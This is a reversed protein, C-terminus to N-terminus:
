KKGGRFRENLAELSKETFIALRGPHTGPALHRAQLAKAEVVDVGAINSGAKASGEGSIIILPAKSGNRKAKELLPLLNLAKMVALVDKTKKLGELSNDVVLPLSAGIEHSMRACVTKRDAAFALASKLAKAYERKNMEEAIRREAKPPHARRGKVSGPIRKVKGYRGKPLVEHPKHAIGKNKIAGYDEKRGRYTASTELGAFRYCGKPQREKSEDSLVARKVLDSRKEEDFFHPLEIQKVAKGELSYLTGKM